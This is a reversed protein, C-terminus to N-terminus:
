RCRIVLGPVPAPSLGAWQRESIAPFLPMVLAGTAQLNVTGQGAPDSRAEAQLGAALAAHALNETACGLSAHLPHDILPARDGACAGGALRRRLARAVDQEGGSSLCAVLAPSRAGCAVAVM